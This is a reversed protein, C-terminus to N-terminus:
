LWIKNCIKYIKKFVMELSSLFGSISNVACDQLVKKQSCLLSFQSSLLSYCLFYFLKAGLLNLILLDGATATAVTKHSSPFWPHWSKAVSSYQPWATQLESPLSPHFFSVRGCPIETGGVPLQPCSSRTPATPLLESVAAGPPPSPFSASSLHHLTMTVPIEM